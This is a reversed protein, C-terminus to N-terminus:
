AYRPVVRAVEAFTTTGKAALALASSRLSRFGEAEAAAALAHESPDRLLVSRLSPTVEIVEYIGSRGRYGTGACVSCGEGKRPTAGDLSSPDLGLAAVQEASLEDPRACSACVTRVLRQAVVCSLSSAVLFPEIGMDVLRTLAAVASNTHLTSLVLHGTMSATLALEATEGDRIEGVLVVDPDQRLIARLGKAFTMGARENTQTQTIGPIQIEVPDELTVINREPTVIESLSAYLTSTKGSGTPGTILMLGQPERMSARIKELHEADMGMSDLHKIQEAGMLLRIVVKEGHISPMTSIRTDVSRSDVSIRARGDQPIRREAIDLGSTIKIRSVVAPAARRPVTMVDRLMGDIRYRIRLVDRQPEIHIDSAGARVADSLVMNVLRVTPADDISGSIEQADDQDPSIGELVTAVDANDESLSWARHLHEKIQSSTAVLVELRPANTYLRVDDLALVNTPDSTAVRLGGDSLKDVVFVGTREAVARPLSRAVEPSVVIGGLDVLQIALVDALAQAVQRESALGLESIIEGLRRREGSTDSRQAELARDLDGQTLVGAEILVDGIRRRPGTAYSPTSPAYGGQAPLTAGTGM